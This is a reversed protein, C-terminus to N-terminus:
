ETLRAKTSENIWAGVKYTDGEKIGEFFAEEKRPFYKSYTNILERAEGSCEPDIAKAKLFKDVAVWYVSQKELPTTGYDKSYAAYAKGILLYPAGWNARFRAAKLANSKADSYQGQMLLITALKFHLDAKIDADKELEISKVLYGKSKDFEKKKIFMRALNHAADATPDLIYKREAVEAYLAGDECEQRNLMRLIKDILVMDDHNAHFKPTFIKSLTECDAVGAAFFIQEVNLRANNINDKKAADKEIDMQKKGMDMFLLYNDIIEEAEIQNNQVLVKAAQMTNAIVKAESKLGQIEISKKMIDYAEKVSAIDNEKYQFLDGGKRGLIWGANYKRDTGFYKIRNDYVMMLTDIYKENKTARYLGEMIKVGNIYTSKQYAPANKYVYRWGTLAEKYNGQKVMEIYLSANLITKVSDLGYKSEVTQAEAKFLGSFLLVMTLILLRTKM